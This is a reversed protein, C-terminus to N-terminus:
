LLAWWLGFVVCATSVLALAAVAAASLGGILVQMVVDIKSTVNCVAPRAAWWRWELVLGTIFAAILILVAGKFFITTM